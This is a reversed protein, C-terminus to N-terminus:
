RVEEHSCLTSDCYRRVEGSRPCFHRPDGCSDRECASGECECHQCEGDTEHNQADCVNCYWFESHVRILKTQM